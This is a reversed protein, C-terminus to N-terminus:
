QGHRSELDLQPHEFRLSRRRGGSQLWQVAMSLGAARNRLGHHQVLGPKREGHQARSGTRGPDDAPGGSRGPGRRHQHANGPLGRNTIVVTYSGADNTTTDSLTLASTQSGSIEGGDALNNSNFQWQYAFPATGLVSVAFLAPYGNTVTLPAPGGVITPPALVTLTVPSSTLSGYSNSVVM